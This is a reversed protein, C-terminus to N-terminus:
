RQRLYESISQRLRQRDRTQRERDTETERHRVEARDRSVRRGKRNWLDDEGESQRITQRDDERGRWGDMLREEKWSSGRKEEARKEEGRSQRNATV